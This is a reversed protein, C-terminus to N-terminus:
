LRGGLPEGLADVFVDDGAVFPKELGLAVRVVARKSSLTQMPHWMLTVEWVVSAQTHFKRLPSTTREYQDRGCAGSKANM